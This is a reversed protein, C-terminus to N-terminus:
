PRVRCYSLAERLRLRLLVNRTTHCSRENGAYILSVLPHGEITSGRGFRGRTKSDDNADLYRNQATSIRACCAADGLRAQADDLYLRWKGCQQCVPTGTPRGSATKVSLLRGAFVTSLCCTRKMTYSGLFCVLLPKGSAGLPYLCATLSAFSISSIM